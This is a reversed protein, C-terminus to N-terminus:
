ADKVGKARLAALVIARRRDGDAEGYTEPDTAKVFSVFCAGRCLKSALIHIRFDYGCGTMADVLMFADSDSSLPNWDRAYEDPSTRIMIAARTSFYAPYNPMRYQIRDDFPVVNWGMVKEAAASVM